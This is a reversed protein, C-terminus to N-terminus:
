SEAQCGNTETSARDRHDIGLDARHPPSSQLHFQHAIEEFAERAARAGINVRAHEVSAGAVVLDFREEFSKRPRQAARAGAIAAQAAHERAGLFEWSRVGLIAM